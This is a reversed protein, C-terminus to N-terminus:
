VRTLVSAVTALLLGGVVGVGHIGNLVSSVVDALRNYPEGDGRTTSKLSIQVCLLSGNGGSRLLSVLLNGLVAIGADGGTKGCGLIGNAVLDVLLLMVGRGVNVLLSGLVLHQVM